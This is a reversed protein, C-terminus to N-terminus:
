QWNNCPLVSTDKSPTAITQQHPPVIYAMVIYYHQLHAYQKPLRKAQPPNPPIDKMTWAHVLLNLLTGDTVGLIQIRNYLLTKCKLTIDLLNWGGEYKSSQLTTVPVRFLSAHWIYWRCIATLQQVHIRTPLLIQATFWIKALLCIKVYQIRQELCLTRALSKRAQVLVARVLKAWSDSRSLAITSGFTVGLIEIRDKFPITLITAPHAWGAIPLARSKFPNLRAGTALENM